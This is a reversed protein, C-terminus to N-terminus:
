HLHVQLWMQVWPGGPLEHVGPDATIVSSSRCSPQETLAFGGQSSLFCFWASRPESGAGACGRTRSSFCLELLRHQEPM